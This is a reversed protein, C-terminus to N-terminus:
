PAPAQKRGAAARMWEHQRMEAATMREAPDKFLLRKLLDKGPESIALADIAPQEAVIRGKTQLDTRTGFPYTGSLLKYLLVGLSWMDRPPGAYPQASVVESPAESPPSRNACIHVYWPSFLGD